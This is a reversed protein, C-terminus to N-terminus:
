NDAALITDNVGSQKNLDAPLWQTDTPRKYASHLHHDTGPFYLYDFGTASYGTMAVQGSGCTSVNVDGSSLTVDRAKWQGASPDFYIEHAHLDSAVYFVHWQTGDFYVNPINNSVHTDGSLKTLDALLWQAGPVYPQPTYLQHMHGDAQNTYFVSIHSGDSLAATGFLPKDHGFQATLDVTGWPPCSGGTCTVVNVNGSPSSMYFVLLTHGDWTSSVSPIQLPAEAGASITPSFPNFPGFFETIKSVNNDTSATFAHATSGDFVSTMGGTIAYYGGLAQTSDSFFTHSTDTSSVISTSWPGGDGGANVAECLPAGQCPFFLSESSGVMVGSLPTGRDVLTTSGSGFNFQQNGHWHGDYFFETLVDNPTQVFFVHHTGHAGDFFSAMTTPTQGAHGVSAFLTPSALCGAFLFRTLTRM